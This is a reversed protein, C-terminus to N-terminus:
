PLYTDLLLSSQKRHEDIKSLLFGSISLKDDRILPTLDLGFCLYPIEDKQDYHHFTANSKRKAMAAEPYNKVSNQSKYVDLLQYQLDPQASLDFSIQNGQTTWDLGGWCAMGYLFKPREKLPLQRVAEITLLSVATHTPHLDLPNHIYIYEPESHTLITHLDKLGPILPPNRVEQSTFGLMIQASYKGLSAAKKQEENRTHIFDTPTLPTHMESRPAGAGNTVVVGSFWLDTKEWCDLIGPIAIIELDDQHAGIGLHTTRQLADELSRGDPIFIEVDPHSFQISTKTIAM